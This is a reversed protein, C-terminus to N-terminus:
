FMNTIRSIHPSIFTFTTWKKNNDMSLPPTAHIKKHQIQHRLKHILAPPFKNHQATRLITIWERHQCEENLPLNLM